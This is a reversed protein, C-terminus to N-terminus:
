ISDETYWFLVVSLVGTFNTLITITVSRCRSIWLETDLGKTIFLVYSDPSPIFKTSRILLSGLVKAEM